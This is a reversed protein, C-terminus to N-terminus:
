LKFTVKTSVARAEKPAISTGYTFAVMTNEATYGAVKMKSMNFLYLAGAKKAEAYAKGTRAIEAEHKKLGADNHEIATWKVKTM